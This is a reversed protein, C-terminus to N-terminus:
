GGFVVGAKRLEAITAPDYGLVESLVQASHEGLRPAPTVTVNVGNFKIFPAGQLAAGVEPDQVVAVLENAVVQPDDFMESLHPVKSVPIEAALFDEFLKDAPHRRCYQAIARAVDGEPGAERAQDFSAAALDEIRSRLAEWSRVGAALYIWRGDQCQYARHLASSGRSEPAGNDLNPRGPYFVFEGAQLAMVAHILSTECYQGRGTIQRARLALVCGLASLTAAGYDAIPVTMYLPHKPSADGNYGIGSHATMTGSMAQVLPDLGPRDCDPGSSGFGTVTMYILRPNIASLREYDIGIARTRGPRFNEVFVDAKRVLEYLIELGKPSKIDLGLGSKNQNWARFGTVHRLSDGDPGEIKIVEAGLHALLMPGFSGAIYSSCDIVRIGDLPARTVSTQPPTRTKAGNRSAQELLRDLAANTDTCAPAPGRIEAPTESLQIPPGIQITRGLQPDDVERRMGLHVVQPDQMFQDRTLVPAAPVEYQRLIGIWEDRPRTLFARDLIDKLAPIHEKPVRWPADKFRPDEFLAPQGIAGALRQCFRASTCDVILYLGDSGKFLRIVAYPGLPDTPGPPTTPLRPNRLLDGSQLALSGALLSVEVVECPAGEGRAILAATAGAAGLLGAEYSPAPFVTVVPNGSRSIQSGFIGSWARLLDDDAALDAYSGRSGLPPMRLMIAAPNLRAISQPDLGLLRERAPTFGSVVIDALKILDRAKGLEAPSDLDLFLAQKSRNLIHFHPTGRAPDGGRPEIRITTAGYEALLMAAYASGLHSAFEVVTITDLPKAM